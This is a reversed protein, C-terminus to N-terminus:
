YNMLYDRYLGGMNKILERFNHIARKSGYKIDPDNGSLNDILSPISEEMDQITDYYKPAEWNKKKNNEPPPNIAKETKIPDPTVQVNTPVGFRERYLQDKISNLSM